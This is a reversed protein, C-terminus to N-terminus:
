FWAIRCYIYDTGYLLDVRGGIDWGHEDTNLTKEMVLYTQNFQFENRDNPALTGNYRSAPNDPNVTVGMDLWGYVNIDTCGLKGIVRHPEDAKEEEAKERGSKKLSPRARRGEPRTRHGVRQQAVQSQGNQSALSLYNDSESAAPQVTAPQRLEDSAVAVQASAWGPCFLAASLLSAAMLKVLEM